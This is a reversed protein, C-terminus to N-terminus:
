ELRPLLREARDPERLAAVHREFAALLGDVEDPTNFMGFSVRLSSLVESESLGMTLLSSNPEVVGSACASGTSVAYGDLDLRIMLAEARVGTVAIHSTNPLRPSGACHVEVGGVAELGREFRDRLAALKRSREELEQAATEAAVGLGVVAPVNVTSARRRREHGGGILYPVLEVGERIWLAAAGLPGHFKHGGLTLFHVGLDRVDVPIKGVAQVADCLVPVGRERCGAAVERVPQLTGLENSALMLSVLRTESRLEALLESPDVRGDLGPAIRSVEVGQSELTEVPALM